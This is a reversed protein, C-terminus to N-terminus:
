GTKCPQSVLLSEAAKEGAEGESKMVQRLCTSKPLCYQIRVMTELAAWFAYGHAPRNLGLAELINGLQFAAAALHVM